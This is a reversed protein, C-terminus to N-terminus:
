SKVRKVLRVRNTGAGDSSFEVQDMLKRMLFLGLGGVRRNMIYDKMDPNAHDEPDFRTGSSDSIAVIFCEGDKEIALEIRKDADGSYGHEIVNTVAESVALQLDHIESSSLGVKIALDAVFSRAIDLYNVDSPLSVSVPKLPKPSPRPEDM